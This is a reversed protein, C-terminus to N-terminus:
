KFIVQVELTEGDRFTVPPDFETRVVLVGEPFGSFVGHETFVHASLDVTQFRRGLDKELLDGEGETRRVVDSFNTQM